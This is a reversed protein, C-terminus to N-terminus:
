KGIISPPAYYLRILLNKNIKILEAITCINADVAVSPSTSLTSFQVTVSVFIYLRTMWCKKMGDM